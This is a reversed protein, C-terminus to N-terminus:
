GERDIPYADRLGVEWLQGSPLWVRMTTPVTCHNRVLSRKWAWAVVRAQLRAPLVYLLTHWGTYRTIKLELAM